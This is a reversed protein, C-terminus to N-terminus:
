RGTFIRLLLHGSMAFTLLLGFLYARHRLPQTPRLYAATHILRSFLFLGGYWAVGPNWCGLQIYGLLLFLFIPVNELDNRLIAQARTVIPLEETAPPCGGGFFAADEPRVFAKHKLRYFGQIGAVVFGKLFLGFVILSYTEWVRM